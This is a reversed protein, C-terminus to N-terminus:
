IGPVAAVARRADHTAFCGPVEFPGDGVGTDDRGDVLEGEGGRVARIEWEELDRLRVWVGPEPTHEIKRIRPMVDGRLTNLKPLDLLVRRSRITTARADSDRTLCGLLLGHPLSKPLSILITHFPDNETSREVKELIHNKGEKRENIKTSAVISLQKKKKKKEVKDTILDEFSRLLCHCSSRRRACCRGRGTWASGDCQLIRSRCSRVVDRWAYDSTWTWTWM